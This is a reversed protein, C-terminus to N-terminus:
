LLQIGLREAVRKLFHLAPRYEIAGDLFPEDLVLVQRIPPHRSVILLMRLLLPRVEAIINPKLGVKKLEEELTELKEM